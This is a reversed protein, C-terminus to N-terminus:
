KSMRELTRAIWATVKRRRKKGPTYTVSAVDRPEYIPGTEREARKREARAEWYAESQQERESRAARELRAADDPGLRGFVYQWGITVRGARAQAAAALADKVRKATQNTPLAEFLARIEGDSWRGFLPRTALWSALARTLDHRDKHYHPEVIETVRAVRDSPDATSPGAGKSRKARSKPAPEDDVLEIALLEDVPLPAGDCEWVDRAPTGRIAGVFFFHAADLTRPDVIVDLMEAVVRLLLRCEREEIPRSLPLYVRLKRTSPAPDSPSAHVIAAWGLYAIADILARVDPINRDVDLTALTVFAVGANSRRREPGRLTHPGLLPLLKKTKATRKLRERLWACFAPWDGFHVPTGVNDTVGRYDTIEIETVQDTEPSVTNM